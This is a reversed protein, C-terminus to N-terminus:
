WLGRIVPAIQPTPTPEAQPMPAAMPAPEAAAPATPETSAVAGASRPAGGFGQRWGVNVRWAGFDEFGVGNITTGAAGLYGGEVFAFGRETARYAVGAKAQYALAGAGGGAFCGSGFDCAPMVINAYGIGAGLYPSWRSRVGDSSRIPIDYYGNLMVTTLHGSGDVGTRQFTEGQINFELSDIPVNSYGVALETRWNPWKYGVALEGNFGGKLDLTNTFPVINRVDGDGSYDQPFAAGLQLSLYPYGPEPLPAVGAPPVAQAVLTASTQPPIQQPTTETALLLPIM